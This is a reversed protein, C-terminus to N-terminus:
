FAPEPLEGNLYPNLDNTYLDSAKVSGAELWGHKVMMDLWFQVKREDVGLDEPDFWNGGANKLEMTVAYIESAEDFNANSWRQAKLNAAIYAKIVDPNKNIFDESFARVATGFADGGFTDGGAAATGIEYSSAIQRYGGEAVANMAYLVHLAGVDVQGQKLAPLMQLDPMVVIEVDNETLNNQYLYEQLMLDSCTGRNVVAVKKGKFDAGSKIPSDDRVYFYMHGKGLDPHDIHGQMVIKIKAGANRANVVDTVHGSGMLDNDGSVVTQVLTTGSPLAGTNEKIIGVEEFFGKEKAITFDFYMQDPVKLKYPETLVGNVFARSVAGASAAPEKKSCAGGLFALAAALLVAFGARGAAATKGRREFLTKKM